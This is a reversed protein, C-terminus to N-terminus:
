GAANDAGPVRVELRLPAPHELRRQLLMEPAPSIRDQGKPVGRELLHNILNRDFTEISRAIDAVAATVDYLEVQRKRKRAKSHGAPQELSSARPKM